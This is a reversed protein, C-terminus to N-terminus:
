PIAGTVDTSSPTVSARGPLRTAAAVAALVSWFAVLFVGRYGALADSPAIDQPAVAGIDAVLLAALVAMSLAGAVHRTLALVASGQAVFREPLVRMAAVTTPIFALGSGFGQVFLIGALRVLSADTPLHALLWTSVAVLGLGAVVPSRPGVRDALWGGLSLTLTVGVADAVLLAGVQEVDLGRGIQLAVPVITTRAAQALALLWVVAVATAFARSAFIRVEVIPDVRTRSRRVFLVFLAATLVALAGTPVVALGWAPAERALVVTLVVVTAILAWGLGDLRYRLREAHDPLLWGSLLASAFAVVVFLVFIWRWSAAAVLWGGFPPGVLPAISWGMAWVGLATGRRQVPFAEYVMAMGVPMLVGGGLGQLLRGGVLVEMSQAAACVTAGAGFALLSVVYVNKRGFRDTLWGAVPQVAVVGILFSTVVWDAAPADGRFDEALAPLAVGMVTTNLLAACSGVMVITLVLWPSHGAAPVAEAPATETTM